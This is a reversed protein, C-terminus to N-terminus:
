TMPIGTLLVRVMHEAAWHVGVLNIVNGIIDVYKGPVGTHVVSKKRLLDLTVERYWNKFYAWDGHNPFLAETFIKRKEDGHQPEFDYTLMFRCVDM